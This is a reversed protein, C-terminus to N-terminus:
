LANILINFYSLCDQLYIIYEQSYSLVNPILKMDLKECIFM